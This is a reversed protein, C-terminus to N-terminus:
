TIYTYISVLISPTADVSCSEHTSFRDWSGNTCRQFYTHIKNTNSDIDQNKSYASSLCRQKSNGKEIKAAHTTNEMKETVSALKCKICHTLHMCHRSCFPRHGLRPQQRPTVSMMAYSSAVTHPSSHLHAEMHRKCQLAFSPVPLVGPTLRSMNTLNPM